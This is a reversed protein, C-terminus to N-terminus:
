VALNNGNPEYTNSKFDFVDSISKIQTHGIKM